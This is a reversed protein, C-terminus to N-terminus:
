NSLQIALLFYLGRRLHVSFFHNKSLRLAESITPYDDLEYAFLHESMIKNYAIGNGVYIQRTTSLLGIVGGAPNAFSAEGATFVYPNDFRSFECTLTVFLPFRGPNYLRNALEKDFIRESALGSEGGHGFYNIALSGQIFQNEM